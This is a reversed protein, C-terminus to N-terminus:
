TTTNDIMATNEGFAEYEGCSCFKGVAHQDETFSVHSGHQGYIGPMVVTSPGVSAVVQGRWLCIVGNGVEIMLPDFASRDQSAQDVFM